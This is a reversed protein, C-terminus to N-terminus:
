DDTKWDAVFAVFLAAAQSTRFRIDVRGNKFGKVAEVEGVNVPLWEGTNKGQVDKIAQYAPDIKVEGTSFYQLARFLIPLGTYHGFGHISLTKGSQSVPKERAACRAFREILVQKGHKKFDATEIRNVIENYVDQWHATPKISDAYESVKMFDYAHYLNLGLFYKDEFYTVLDAYYVRTLRQIKNLYNETKERVHYDQLYANVPQKQTHRFLGILFSRAETYAAQKQECFYVDQCTLM